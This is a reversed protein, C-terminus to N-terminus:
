VVDKDLELEYDGNNRVMEMRACEVDEDVEGQGGWFAELCFLYTITCSRAVM